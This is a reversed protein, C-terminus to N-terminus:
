KPDSFIVHCGSLFPYSTQGGDKRGDATEEEVKDCTVTIAIAEAGCPLDIHMPERSKADKWLGITRVRAAGPPPRCLDVMGASSLTLVSSGPDDALVTAYRGPWRSTLQPGDMLLAIVLNPGVARVIDGVPDPRALDECVLVCLTLWDRLTIFNLQREDLAIHEWWELTPNLRAGLGYQVIQGRDLRWRHHKNQLIETFFVAEDDKKKPWPIDIAFYNRGPSDTRTSTESIGCILLVGKQVLADRLAVHQDSTLALEPFVVGDIKGVIKEAEDILKIVKDAYPQSATEQREPQFGFFGYKSSDMNLLQGLPPSAATFQAPVVKEPWPVLLLNLSSAEIDTPPIYWYPIVDASVCLALHHTISRITIGSRPAHQKPLVRLKSWHVEKCLTSGHENILRNVATREFMDRNDASTLGVGAATEDAASSLQLLAECLDDHEATKSLSVHDHCLVVHWWQRVKEPVQKDCHIRWEEAIQAVSEVWEERTTTDSKPPWKKVVFVYAGTKALIAACVGFVDPPWIPCDPVERLRPLLWSLLEGLTGEDTKLSGEGM